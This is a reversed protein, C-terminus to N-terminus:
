ISTILFKSGGGCLSACWAISLPMDHHGARIQWSDAHVIVTSFSHALNVQIVDIPKATPWDPKQTLPYVHRFWSVAERELGEGRPQLVSKPTGPPFLARYWSSARTLVGKYFDLLGAANSSAHFCCFAIDKLIMNMGHLTLSEVTDTSYPRVMEQLRASPCEM